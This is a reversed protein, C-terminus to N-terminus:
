AIRVPLIEVVSPSSVILSRVVEDFRRVLVVDFVRGIEINSCHFTTMPHILDVKDVILLRIDLVFGVGDSINAPDSSFFLFFVNM